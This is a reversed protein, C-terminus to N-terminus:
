VLYKEKTNTHSKIVNHQKVRDQTSFIPKIVYINYYITYLFYLFDHFDVSAHKTKLGCQARTICGFGEWQVVETVSSIGYEAVILDRTRAPLFIQM